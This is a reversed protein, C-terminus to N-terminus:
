KTYVAIKRDVNKIKEEVKEIVENLSFIQTYLLDVMADDTALYVSSTYYRVQDNLRAHQRNYANLTNVLTQREAKLTKVTKRNKLTTFINKMKYRERRPNRTHPKGERKRISNYCL